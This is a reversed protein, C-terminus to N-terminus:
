PSSHRLTVKTRERTRQPHEPWSLFFTKAALGGVRKYFIRHRVDRGGRNVGNVILGSCCGICEEVVLYCAVRM